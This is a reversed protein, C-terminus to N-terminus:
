YNYFDPDTLFPISVVVGAISLVAIVCISLVLLGLGLYGMLLGFTATGGGGERTRAIQGHAVHGTIIAVLWALPSICSVAATCFGLVSGIGLTAVSLVVVAVNACITILAIIWGTLGSIFSFNAMSNSGPRPMYYPPPQPPYQYGM